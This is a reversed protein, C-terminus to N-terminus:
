KEYLKPQNIARFPLMTTISWFGADWQVAIALDFGNQHWVLTLRGVEALHISRWNEAVACAFALSTSYGRRGIMKVRDPNSQVHRWGWGKPGPYGNLLRIPGKQVGCAAAAAADITGLDRLSGPALILTTPDDEPAVM